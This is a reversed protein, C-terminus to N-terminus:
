ILYKTPYDTCVGYANEIGNIKFDHIEPMLVVSMKGIAYNLSSYQWWMGHSTITILDENHWFYNSKPFIEHIQKVADLNKCHIWLKPNNLFEPDIKYYPNDHGLWWNGNLYRVDIECDFLQCAKMIEEPKNELSTNPGNLLGRHAIIKM